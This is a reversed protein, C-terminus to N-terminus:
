LIILNKQQQQFNPLHALVLGEKRGTLWDVPALKRMEKCWATYELEGLSDKESLYHMNKVLGTQSMETVQRAVTPM